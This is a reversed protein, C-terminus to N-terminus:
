YEALAKSTAQAPESYFDIQLKDIVEAPIDAFDRRDESPIMVRKAGADMVIRLKPDLEIRRGSGGDARKKAEEQIM